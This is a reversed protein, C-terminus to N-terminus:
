GFSVVHCVYKSPSGFQGLTAVIHLATGIHIDIPCNYAVWIHTLFTSLTAATHVLVLEPKCLLM